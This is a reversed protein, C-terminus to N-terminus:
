WSRRRPRRAIEAFIQQIVRESEPTLEDRGELFYLLFSAPRPPQAALADGWTRRVEEETAVGAELRGDTGIRAAAYPAHSSGNSPAM